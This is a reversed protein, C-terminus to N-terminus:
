KLINAKKQHWMLYSTFHPNFIKFFNYSQTSAPLWSPQPNLFSKREMEYRPLNNSFSSLTHPKVQNEKYEKNKVMKGLRCEKKRQRGQGRRENSITSISSLPPTLFLFLLDSRPLISLLLSVLFSSDCFYLSSTVCLSPSTVISVM